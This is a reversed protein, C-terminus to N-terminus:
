RIGILHSPCERCDSSGFREKPIWSGPMELLEQNHDCEERRDSPFLKVDLLEVNEDALLYDIHWHMKKKPRRHREVRQRLNKMASGTYVYFGKRFGVVGLKGIEITCNRHVRILLQYAGSNM